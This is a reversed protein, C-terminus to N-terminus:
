RGISGRVHKKSNASRLGLMNGETDQIFAIFGYEGIDLKPRIIKGGAKEVRSLEIEVDECDFYLLTGGPGPQVEDIKVIAGGTGGESSPFTAYNMQTHRDTEVVRDTFEVKFVETYFKKARDFDTVYIEFWNIVSKMQKNKPVDAFIGLGGWVFNYFVSAAPRRVTVGGM